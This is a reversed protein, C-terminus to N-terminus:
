EATSQRLREVVLQNLSIGSRKAAVYIDRHLRKPLRLTLKGSFPRDPSEGREECWALYEDVSDRFAREIEGASTGQFTVVDGIDLVEGHFLQAEGDYEVHGTYGKHKLM